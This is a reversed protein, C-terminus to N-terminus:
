KVERLDAKDKGNIRVETVAICFEEIESAWLCTGPGNIQEWLIPFGGLGDFLSAMTADREYMASIRKLVWKWPPLGISNGLAKYRASDTTKRVKGKSDVWEGIDTYGVPYGQLIECEEPTLRRVRYNSEEMSAVGHVETTNLTYSQDSEIYGDGRHSPRQGNGEVAITPTRSETTDFSNLTDATEAVAYNQPQQSNQPHGTKRYAVMAMPTNNGGTGMRGSLTQVKGTPDLGMRSDNPHNEVSIVANFNQKDPMRQGGRCQSIDAYGCCRSRELLTNGDEVVFMDNYADQGNYSGGHAGPSLTGTVKQM